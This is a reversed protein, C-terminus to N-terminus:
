SKDPAAYVCDLNLDSLQQWLIVVVIPPLATTSGGLTTPIMTNSIDIFDCTKLTIKRVGLRVSISGGLTASLKRSYAAALGWAYCAATSASASITQQTTSINKEWTTQAALQNRKRAKISECQVLQIKPAASFERWSCYTSQKWYKEWSVRAIHHTREKSSPGLARQQARQIYLM